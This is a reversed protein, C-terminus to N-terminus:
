RHSYFLGTPHDEKALLIGLYICILSFLVPILFAPAVWNIMKVGGFVIFCLVTTVVIGYIQLDHSSPSEIPQSSTDYDGKKAM